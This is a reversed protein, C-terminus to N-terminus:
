KANWNEPMFYHTTLFPMLSSMVFSIAGHINMHPCGAQLLMEVQADTMGFIRKVEEVGVIQITQNEEM